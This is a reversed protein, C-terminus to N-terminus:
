AFRSGNQGQIYPRLRLKYFLPATGHKISLRNTIAAIAATKTTAATTSTTVMFLGATGTGDVLVMDGGGM